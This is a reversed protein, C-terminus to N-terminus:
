ESVASSSHTVLSRDRVSNEAVRLRASVGRPSSLMPWSRCEGDRGGTLAPAAPSTKLALPLFLKHPGSHGGPGQASFALQTSELTVYSQATSKAKAQLGLSASLRFLSLWGRPALHKSLLM